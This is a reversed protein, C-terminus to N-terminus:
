QEVVFEAVSLYSIHRLVPLARLLWRDLRTLVRHLGAFLRPGLPLRLLMASLVSLVFFQRHRASAFARGLRDLERVSVFRHPASWMYPELLRALMALHPFRMVELMLVKGGPVLVRQCEALVRVKDTHCIGNLVFVCDFAADALPLRMADACLHQPAASAGESAARARTLAPLAFDLALVDAGHEALMRADEGLGAFLVLARKGPLPGAWTLMQDYAEQWWARWLRDRLQQGRRWYDGYFRRIRAQAPNARPPLVGLPPALELTRAVSSNAQAHHAATSEVRM